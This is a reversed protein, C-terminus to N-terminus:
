SSAGLVIVSGTGLASRLTESSRGYPRLEEFLAPQFVQQDPRRRLEQQRKEWRLQDALRNSRYREACLKGMRLDLQELEPVLSKEEAEYGIRDFPDKCVALEKRVQRLQAFIAERMLSLDQLTQDLRLAAQRLESESPLPGTTNVSIPPM